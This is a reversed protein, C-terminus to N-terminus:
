KANKCPTLAPRRHMNPPPTICRPISTSGLPDAEVQLTDLSSHRRTSFAVRRSVSRTLIESSASPDTPNNSVARFHDLLSQAIIPTTRCRPPLSGQGFFALPEVQSSWLLQFQSPTPNRSRRRLKHCTWSAVEFCAVIYASFCVRRRRLGCRGALASLPAAQQRHFLRVIQLHMPSKKKCINRHLM